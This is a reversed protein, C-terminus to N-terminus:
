TMPHLMGSCVPLRPMTIEAPEFLIGLAVTCAAGIFPSILILDLALTAVFPTM